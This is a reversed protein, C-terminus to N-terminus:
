DYKLSHCFEAQCQNVEDDLPELALFQRAKKMGQPLYVDHLVLILLSLLVFCVHQVFVHFFLISLFVLLPFQCFWSPQPQAAAAEGTGGPKM